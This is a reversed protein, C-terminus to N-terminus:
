ENMDVEFGRYINVITCRIEREEKKLIRAVAKKYLTLQPLYSERLKEAGKRSYKYDVIEVDTEGEAMLDIAGQFLLEDKCEGDAVAIGVLPLAECAPIAALFRRERYLRKEKLRAFVPLSLIETLKEVCLLRAYEESLLGQAKMAFLEEEVWVSLEEGQPCAFSCNELFAHYALGEEVGTNEGELTKDLSFAESDRVQETEGDFQRMLATASSKVPLEECGTHAYKWDLAAGFEAKLGDDVEGALAQRPVTLTEEESEEATLDEWLSFDTLDAVSAAYRVDTTKKKEDFILHLGYKARTLAVYYLNLEDKAREALKREQFLLRLVSGRLTMKEADHAKPALGFEEEVLVPASDVAHFNHSLDDVVVIPFELGKSAHMTMIRVSNEGGNESYNVTFSLLKLRELFEHVNLPEASSAEELFRRIRKLCNEGGYRALFSAELGTESLIKNLLEEASLLHSLRRLETLYAFFRRLKGAVADTEGEAYARCADRFFAKNGQPYRLRVAALENENLGGMDSVLASFLPIDQEANDILRLIDTLTQIESFDFINVPSESTVPIGQESLAAVLASTRRGNSRVLVAIDAYEAARVEGTENDFFRKGRASKVIRVVAQVASDEEKEAKGANERVSYVGRSPLGNVEEIQEEAKKKGLFHLKVFGEYGEPTSYNEGVRMKGEREYDIGCFEETMARSFQTNVAELVPLRSRFNHPLQLANAKEDAKYEEWTEKFYKSKSGRFAYIAQKMDGVLFVNEGSVLRILKEQVPNVDQYEDVFVYRYRERMEKAIEEDRLLKLAIHELDNYDLVGKEIKQRTYEEDFRLLYKALARAIEGASLFARLEEERTGLKKLKGDVEKVGAVAFALREVWEAYDPAMNGTEKKSFCLPLEKWEFVSQARRAAEVYEAVETALPLSGKKEKRKLPKKGAAIREDCERQYLADSLDKQAKFYELAKAATEAYYDLKNLFALRLAECVRDFVGEDLTQTRELYELYDDRSRLGNYTSLFIERLNEDKKKRYYVSLLQYFDPDKSEYGEEFIEDLARGQLVKGDADEASIISFTNGVGAAYFHTKILRSCFSHVTSVDAGAVAALQKKLHTREADTRTREGMAKIIKARLKEKMQAAAKKTYTVALIESVDVGSLILALMKEIMVTTKGSGASASVITRGTASIAAQQENTFKPTAM